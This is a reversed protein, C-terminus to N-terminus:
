PSQFPPLQSSQRFTNFPINYSDINSYPRNPYGPFDNFTRISPIYEQQRPVRRYNRPVTRNNRTFNAAAPTNPPQLLFGNTPIPPVIRSPNFNAQTNRLIQSRNSHLDNRFRFFFSIM